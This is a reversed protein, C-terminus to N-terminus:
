ARMAARFALIQWGGIKCNDHSIESRLEANIVENM